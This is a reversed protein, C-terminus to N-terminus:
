SDSVHGGSSNLIHKCTHIVRCINQVCSFLKYMDNPSKKVSPAQKFAIYFQRSHCQTQPSVKRYTHSGLSSPFSATKLAFFPLHRKVRFYSFQNIINFFLPVSAVLCLRCCICLGRRSLARHGPSCLASNAPTRKWTIHSGPDGEPKLAFGTPKWVRRANHHTDIKFPWCADQGIQRRGPGRLGLSAPLFVWRSTATCFLSTSSSCSAPHWLGSSCRVTWFFHARSSDTELLWKPETQKPDQSLIESHTPKSSLSPFGGAESGWTSSNCTYGVM